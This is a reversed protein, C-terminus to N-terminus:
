GEPSVEFPIEKSRGQYLTHGKNNEGNFGIRKKMASLAKTIIYKSAHKNIQHRELENFSLHCKCLINRSHIFSKEM